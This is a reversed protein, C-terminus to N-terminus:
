GPVITTPDSKAEKGQKRRRNAAISHALFVFQETYLLATFRRRTTAVVRWKGVNTAEAWSGEMWKAVSVVM